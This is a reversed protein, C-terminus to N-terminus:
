RRVSRLAALRWARLREQHFADYAFLTAVLAVGGIVVGWGHGGASIHFLGLLMLVPGMAYCAGWARREWSGLPQSERAPDYAISMPFLAAVVTLVALLILGPTTAWEARYWWGLGAFLFGLALLGFGLRNM